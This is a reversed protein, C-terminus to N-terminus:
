QLCAAAERASSLAADLLHGHAGVWDGALCIGPEFEVKPRGAAGYSAATPLWNSVLLNPAFREVLVQEGFGPQVMEVYQELESRLAAADLGEEPALYRAVHVLAAGKPALAAHASHVSLYLPRDLGLAFLRDPRPLRRLGLTLSAAHIPVAETWLEPRGLISAAVRPGLALVVAKCDVHDGNSLELRFRSSGGRHLKSVPAYRIEVPHKLELSQAQKSLEEVLSQWGGDLYTVGRQSTRQLNRLAAGASMASPAHAYSSVRFLGLLTQRLVGQLGAEDLWAEVTCADFRAADVSGITALLKAFTLKDSVKFLPTRLLSLIGTPLLHLRQDIFGWSGEGPVVRRPLPVDLLRLVAEAEGGRYLAHPGQNLVFGAEHQQSRARGGLKDRREILQVRKGQRALLTAVALGALGGGVVVADFGSSKGLM